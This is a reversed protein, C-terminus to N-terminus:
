LNFMHRDACKEIFEEYEEKPIKNERIIERVGAHNVSIYALDPKKLAYLVGKYHYHILGDYDIMSPKGFERHYCRRLADEMEIFCRLRWGLVEGDEKRRKGMIDFELHYLTGDECWLM